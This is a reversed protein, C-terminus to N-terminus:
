FVTFYLQAFSQVGSQLNRKPPMKWGLVSGAHSSIPVKHSPSFLASTGTPGSLLATSNHVKKKKEGHRLRQAHPTSGVGGATSARLSLWQGVQSTGTHVKSIVRFFISIALLQVKM